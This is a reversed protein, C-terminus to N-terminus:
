RVKFTDKDPTPDVNGAQDIARVSFTHNGPTLGSYTQPSTCSSFNAAGDLRCQFSSGNESSTFSFSASTSSVPGAPGATITTDPPQTDVTWDRVAPSPDVNNSPDIARVSFTHPGDALPSYSVPSSCREFPAGDLSCEFTSGEESSTFSFRASTSSTHGSPGEDITTDPPTTDPPTVGTPSFVTALFRTATGGAPVTVSWSLGAGNDILETCRCTDPFNSGNIANWVQSYEAEYFHSEPSLPVFGLIRGAPSNNPNTACYIGGSSSDFFGHGTDSNQLFCDAAHYLVVSHSSASSNSIAIETRYAEQGMVYSDTQTIRLGTTGADVVTTVRFPDGISGSGSVPSQSVLTYPTRALGAPVTPGYVTTGGQEPPNPVALFTGCAGPNTGEPTPPYFENSTDSIHRAQCALNSNLFISTLPGSSSIVQQPSQQAMASPAAAWIAATCVSFCLLAKMLSGPQATKKM